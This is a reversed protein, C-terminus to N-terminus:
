INIYKCVHGYKYNRLKYVKIMWSISLFVLCPLVVQGFCDNKSLSVESQLKVAAKCHKVHKLIPEYQTKNMHMYIHEVVHLEAVYQIKGKPTHSCPAFQTRSERSSLSLSGLIRPYLSLSLCVLLHLYMYIYM